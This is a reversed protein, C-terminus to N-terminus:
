ESAAADEGGENDEGTDQRASLSNGAGDDTTVVTIKIVKEGEDDIGCGVALFGAFVIFLAVAM